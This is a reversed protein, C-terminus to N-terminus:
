DTIIVLYKSVSWFKEPQAIFLATYINNEKQLIYSDNPHTTIIKVNKSNLPFSTVTTYDIRIFNNNDFNSNLKSTKGIGLLGGTNNLVKMTKLDKSNGILYYATHLSTIQSNITESQSATTITLTDVSTKLQKVQANLSLLKKNLEQLEKDKNIIQKDLTNMLKQFQIITTSSGKLKQNLEGIKKRNQQMLDNIVAIESNIRNKANTGLEGERQVRLSISNQKRAISDLNHEIENFSSLFSNISSDRRNLLFNISDLEHNLVRYEADRGSCGVLLTILIIIATLYKM